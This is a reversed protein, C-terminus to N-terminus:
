KLTRYFICWFLEVCKVDSGFLRSDRLISLCRKTKGSCCCLQSLLIGNGLKTCIVWELNSFEPSISNERAFSNRKWFLEIFSWKLWLEHLQILLLLLSSRASSSQLMLCWLIDDRKGTARFIEYFIWMCAIVSRISPFKIKGTKSFYKAFNNVDLSSWSASWDNIVNRATINCATFYRKIAICNGWTWLLLKIIIIDFKATDSRPFVQISNDFLLSRSVTLKKTLALQM